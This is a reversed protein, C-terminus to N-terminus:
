ITVTLENKRLVVVGASRRAAVMPVFPQLLTPAPRYPAAWYKKITLDSRAQCETKRHMSGGGNIRFPMKVSISGRPYALTKFLLRMFRSLYCDFCDLHPLQLSGLATPRRYADKRHM